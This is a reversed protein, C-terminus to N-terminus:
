IYTPAKFEGWQSRMVACIEGITAYSKVAAIIHPMLSEDKKIGEALAALSKRDGRSRSAYLTEPHPHRERDQLIGGKGAIRRPSEEAPGAGM